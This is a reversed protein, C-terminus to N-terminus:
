ARKRGTIMAYTLNERHLLSEWVVGLLHGAILLVTLNAFFEHLEKLTHVTSNSLNALVAALPGLGQDSGYLALGSLVTLTLSLLLLIIMAGGAPNHGIYRPAHLLLVQKVYNLTVGPGRVFDSFRAYRSGLFGWVLRFLLLGAMIYGAWVHLNQLDTGDMKDQLDEFLEGQTFYAISFAIVLLWHFLRILGDWVLISGPNLNNVENESM